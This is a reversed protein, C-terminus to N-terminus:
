SRRIKAWNTMHRKLSNLDRGSAVHGNGGKNKDIHEWESSVYDVTIKNNQERPHVWSATGRLYPKQSDFGEMDPWWGAGHVVSGAGALPPRTRQNYPISEDEVWRDKKRVIENLLQFYTKM